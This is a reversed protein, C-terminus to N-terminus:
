VSSWLNKKKERLLSNAGPCGKLVGGVAAEQQAVGRLGCETKKGQKRTFPRISCGRGGTTVGPPFLLLTLSLSLVQGRFRVSAVFGLKFKM